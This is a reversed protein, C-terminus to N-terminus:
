EFILKAGEDLIFNVEVFNEYNEEGFRRILTTKGIQRAGAICLAKIDKQGKWDLLKQYAKRYLMYIMEMEWRSFITVNKKTKKLLLAVNKKMKKNNVYCKEKDNAIYAIFPLLTRMRRKLPLVIEASFLFQLRGGITVPSM